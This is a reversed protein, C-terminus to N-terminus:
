LSRNWRPDGYKNAVLWGVQQEEENGLLSEVPPEGVAGSFAAALIEAVREMSLDTGIAESLSIM